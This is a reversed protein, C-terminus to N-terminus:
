QADESRQHHQEEIGRSRKERLVGIGQGYGGRKETNEVIDGVKGSQVCLLVLVCVCM